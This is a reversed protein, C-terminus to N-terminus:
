MKFLICLPRSIHLNKRQLTIESVAPPWITQQLTIESIVSTLNQQQLTIQSFTSTLHKTALYDRFGYLDFDM